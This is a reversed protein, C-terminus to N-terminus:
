KVRVREITPNGQADKAIVDVRIRSLEPEFEDVLKEDVDLGKQMAKYVIEAFEYRTMMRDGEFNGNPYGILIGQEALAHVAVYAWHNRPIDPFLKTTDVPTSTVQQGVLRNVLQKLEQIEGDQKDVVKRLDLIEKGMAVRSTSVHNGQGLKFSIGANVMNEGGGFSGGVSFMTDENPRYYAGIAAANANKYNGFGAAFDWKDDPDFDLPHLAALAAAGAGVRNVRNDLKNIAGDVNDAFMSLQSVNVADTAATGPAVDHIQQGGMSVNSNSVEVAHTGEGGSAIKIGSGTVTTGAKGDSGAITLGNDDMTTKGTTVSELGNLKKALRLSLGNAGNKIVGINKDEAVETAGGTLSLASGFDVNVKQGDDGQYTRKTQKITSVDQKINSVDKTINDIKGNVDGIKGDVINKVDGINAANTNDSDDGKVIGSKVNTINKGGADIGKSDITVGGAKISGDNGLNVDKNLGVKIAGNDISTKVNGEKEVSGDAKYTTDGKIQIAKGLDQKVIKDDGKEDSSLAFGGGHVSQTISSTISSQMLKLQDETAARGSVYDTGDWAKNDLGTVYNGTSQVKGESIVTQNGMVVTGATVTNLGTIDKALQLSLTTNGDTDQSAIVGINNNKTPDTSNDVLKDRTVGGKITVKKNLTTNATEGNDGSLQWGDELTAVTHTHQSDGSYTIRSMNTKLATKTDDMTNQYGTSISVPQISGNNRKGNIILTGEEGATGTGTSAKGLTMTHANLDRDLQVTLTGTDKNALVQVNAGGDYDRGDAGTGQITLTEGLNRHITATGNGKFDLGKNTLATNVGNSVTQLDGITAAHNLVDGTANELTTGDLGSQVNTIQKGGNSLGDTTLKVQSDMSGNQPTIAIGKGDIVTTAGTTDDKFTISDIDTLDKALKIDLQGDKDKNAVVGINQGNSLKTEDTEGGSLKLTSNLLRTVQGNDGAVVLGDDMTAVQHATKSNKDTYTLRTSSASDQDSALNQTGQHTFLSTFAGQSGTLDLYGTGDTQHLVAAQNGNHNLTVGTDGTVMVENAAAKGKFQMSGDTGEIAKGDADTGGHVGVELHDQLEVSVYSDGHNDKKVKTLINAKSRDWGDGDGSGSVKPADGFIRISEGVKKTITADTAEGQGGATVAFTSAGVTDKISKSVENLQDETAARGSVFDKGDWAKNDLGTVFNGSGPVKDESVVSQNGMVVTGATVTNLGTIDKALQLSLTTNGDTDQEAIVGINNNKTSDALKDKTAGGKITVKKNLTTNATEGNDGSLRLGDELTAVTHSLGNGGDYTIRSMATKMAENDKNGRYTVGISVPSMGNDKNTGNLILTGAEGTETGTPAKGLTLTHANLDRDLQVTLTGTDKNALVQVNAGGDYDRGNAGTGQIILTDGLNRHVTTDENNGKFNLGTATLDKKVGNSVTKLDGITAAHNLVDGAANELTTGDLGSQVNTIQKGGNSLGDTTLKVQSDTSGNQPTIAIGKGDIVTTAGTTDDKFTASTMDTLTKSLGISIAKGTTDATTTLNSDAAKLQIAGGLDQKVVTGANDSLGFGGGTEKGNVIANAVQQLQDETAARGSVIGDKSWKTNTLGTIYDGTASNPSTGNNAITQSGIKIGSGTTGATPAFSITGMDTLDKNLKVALGDDGNKVVGINSDTLNGTTAGGTINLTSNLTRSVVKTSDTKADDGAFKMGDDLTAITHLVKEAEAESQGSKAAWYQLRPSGNEKSNLFATGDSGYNQILAAFNGSADGMRLSGDAGNMTLYAGGQGTAKVSGDVGDKSGVVLNDDMLVHIDGKNDITTTINNTNYTHGDQKNGGFIGISDGLQATHTLSTAGDALASATFTLGKEVDAKSALGSITIEKGVTDTDSAVTLKVDGNADVSYAGNSGSASNEVLHYDMKSLGSLDVDVSTGNNKNLTLTATTSTVGDSTTTATSVSGGTVYYDHLGSINVKNNNRETLTVKMSGPNDADDGASGDTVYNDNAVTGTNVDNIAAKLQAETAARNEVINNPEWNTNQLGTIYFGTGSNAGGGAQSGIYIGGTYTDDTGKTGGVRVTTFNVNPTTSIKIDNDNSLSINDGAVFNLTNENPTVAKADKGNIQAKWGSNVTNSVTLLEDETAARGSVYSPNAVDWTTNTLGTAYTGADAKQTTDKGDKDKLTLTNAEVTGLSLKGISATGASGNITAQNGAKIVGTKGNLSVQTGADSGLTVSDNLSVQYDVTGDANTTKDVKTNKNDGSVTVTKAAIKKVDGINAGNTDTGYVPNGSTDTGSAGSAVETIQKSGGSIGGTTVSPGNAITLGTGGLTSSGTTVNGNSGDLTIANGDKGVTVKDATLQTDMKVTIIGTDDIETTLNDTKYTHDKQADNARVAVTDGLNKKVTKYAGDVKNSASFNLGKAINDTNTTIQTKNSNVVDSVSKLQDETAARGTVPQTQGVTWTTNDLGTLYDGSKTTDNGDTQTGLKAGGATITELGTVNKALKLSLESGNATVGINNGTALDTAGGKVDLTKDLAVSAKGTDGAFNLGDGLTAVTHAAGNGDTYSIRGTGKTGSLEPSADYGAKITTAKQANSSDAGVIKISGAKGGDASTGETGATVSDFDPNKDLAISLRNNATDTLVKVNQTSYEEDDKRGSGQIQLTGGQNLHVSTMTDNGQFNLGQSALAKLQAVNVADSDQSGAAVNTIQRTIKVGTADTGGVSVAGSTAVWTTTDIDTDASTNGKDGDDKILINKVEDPILYGQEGSGRNAISHAGLAVGGEATANASTGFASSEVGGATASYGYAASGTEAAEAGYGVAVAAGHDTSEADDNQTGAQAGLGMAVSFNGSAHTSNGVAVSQTGAAENGYGIALSNMGSASSNVGMALSLNGQATTGVGFAMSASGKAGDNYYNALTNEAVPTIPNGKDDKDATKISLFHRGAQELQDETAARGSAYKGPTWTTNDLGTIFKGSETTRTSSITMNDQSDYVPAYYTYSYDNQKGITIAGINALGTTGNFSIRNATDTSLGASITGATGDLVVAKSGTTDKSDQLTVKPLLSITTTQVGKADTSEAAHVNFEDGKVKINTKAEAVAEAKANKLQEMVVVDHDDIGDAVNVLRNYADSDYKNETVTHNQYQVTYYTDGKKHGFSVIRGETDAARSPDIVSATAEYGIAVGNAVTVTAKNGAALGRYAGASTSGGAIGVSYNGQVSSSVGGIAVSDQGIRFFPDSDKDAPYQNDNADKLPDGKADVAVKGTVNGTGGIVISGWGFAKNGSGGSVTSFEGGAQNQTGGAVSAGKGTAKNQGGGSVSSDEGFAQNDTGGSVSSNTGKAHNKSGGRVSSYNGEAHNVFGGSITADEGKASSTDGSETGGGGIVKGAAASANMGGLPFLLAVGLGVAVTTKGMAAFLHTSKVKGAQKAFESVVIYCQKTRNWIVKYVKNM